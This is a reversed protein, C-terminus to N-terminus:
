EVFEGGHRDAKNTKIILLFGVVVVANEESMQDFIVSPDVQGFEVVVDLNGEVVPGDM